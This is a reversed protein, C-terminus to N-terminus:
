KFNDPLDNEFLVTTNGRILESLIEKQQQRSDAYFINSKNFNESKLGNKLAKKNTKNMIIVQDCSKAILKGIKFNM